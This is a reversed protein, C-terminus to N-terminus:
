GRNGPGVAAPQVREERLLSVASGLRVGWNISYIGAAFFVSCIAAPPYERRALCIFFAILGILTFITGLVYQILNDPSSLVGASDNRYALAQFTGNELEGAVALTDGENLIQASASELRVPQADLHFVAIHSSSVHQSNNTGGGRVETTFRLKSVTGRITKMSNDGQHHRTDGFM